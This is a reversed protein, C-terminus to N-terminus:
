NGRGLVFDVSCDLKESLLIINDITPTYLGNKWNYILNLDIDTKQSLKYATMKFKDLLFKIQIDFPPCQKFPTGTNQEVLGLLYDATCNFYDSLLIISNVSPIKKGSLYRTITTRHVGIANALKPSKIDADIMLDLLRDAFISLDLM